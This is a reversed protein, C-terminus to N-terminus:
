TRPMPGAAQQIGSPRFRSMIAQILLYEIGLGLILVPTFVIAKTMVEPFMKDSWFLAALYLAHLPVSALIAKWLWLDRLHGRQEVYLIHGYCVVTAICGQLVEVGFPFGFFDYACCLIAVGIIVRGIWGQRQEKAIDFEPEIRNGFLSPM